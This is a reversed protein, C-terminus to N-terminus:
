SHGKCDIRQRNRNRRPHPRHFRHPAVQEVRSLVKKLKNSQGVIDEFDHELKIEERLYFYDAEIQEKLQKLHATREAVREELEKNTKQLAEEAKKRGSIEHRLRINQAEIQKIMKKLSMHTQIRALIEENQFPKTVYDVGGAKFASVKDDVNLLASIFIVPIERTSDDSKIRQCVEYGDMEPMRIDLLILDPKNKELWKLAMTGNIASKVTYSHKTLEDYLLRLNNPNDDVVLITGPSLHKNTDPTQATAM